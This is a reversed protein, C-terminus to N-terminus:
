ASISRTGVQFTFLGQETWMNCIKPDDEFVAVVEYKGKIHNDYIEKKLITAQRHDRDGRMFLRSTAQMERDLDDTILFHLEYKTWTDPNNYDMDIIESDKLVTSGYINVERLGKLFFDETMDRCLCKRGTIIHIRYDTQTLYYYLLEFTQKIPKDLHVKDYDRYGREASKEALVGDIDFIVAKKM